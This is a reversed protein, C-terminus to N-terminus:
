KDMLVTKKLVDVVINEEVISENVTMRGSAAEFVRIVGRVRVKITRVVDGAGNDPFLFPDAVPLTLMFMCVQTGRFWVIPKLQLDLTSSPSLFGLIPSLAPRQESQTLKEEITKKDPHREKATTSEPKKPELVTSNEVLKLYKVETQGKIAKRPCQM